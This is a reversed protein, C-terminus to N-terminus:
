INTYLITALYTLFKLFPHIRSTRISNLKWSIYYRLSSCLIRRENNKGTKSFNQHINYNNRCSLIQYEFGHELIDDYYPLLINNTIKIDKTSKTSTWSNEKHMAKHVTLRIEYTQIQASLHQIIILMIYRCYFRQVACTPQNSYRYPLISINKKSTLLSACWHDQATIFM